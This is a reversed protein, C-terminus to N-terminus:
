FNPKSLVIKSPDSIDARAGQKVAQTLNLFLDGMVECREKLPLVKIAADDPRIVVTSYGDPLDSASVLTFILKSNSPMSYGDPLDSASVLGKAILGDIVSREAADRRVQELKDLLSM